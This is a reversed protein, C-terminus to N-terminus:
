GTGALQHPPSTATRVAGCLLRFLNMVAKRNALKPSGPTTVRNLHGSRIFIAKTRRIEM